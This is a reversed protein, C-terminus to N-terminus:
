TIKKFYDNAGLDVLDDTFQQTKIFSIPEMQTM